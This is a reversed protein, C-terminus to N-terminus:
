QPPFIQAIHFFAVAGFAPCLGRPLLFRRVADPKRKQVSLYIKIIGFVQVGACIQVFPCSRVEDSEPLQALCWTSQGFAM